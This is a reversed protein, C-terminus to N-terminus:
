VPSFDANIELDVGHPHCPGIIVEEGQPGNEGTWIRYSLQAIEGLARGDMKLWVLPADPRVDEAAQAFASEIAFRQSVGLYPWVISHYLVTAAGKPRQMIQAAVWGAADARDIEPPAKDAIHLAALLRARREPMDGWVWSELKLREQPNQIDVPFLDCGRRSVVEIKEALTPPAGRWTADLTLPSDSAGWQIDGGHSKLRYNFKDFFLNLGASAGMERLRLPLGLRKSIESFGLLLMAARGTENTQPTSRLFKRAAAEDRSFLKELATELDARAADEYVGGCSEYFIRLAADGALAGYHAFGALRLPVNDNLPDGQWGRVLKAIIGNAAFNGYCFGVVDRTLPSGLVACAQQQADFATLLKENVDDGPPRATFFATAVSSKKNQKKSQGHVCILGTL